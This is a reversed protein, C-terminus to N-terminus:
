RRLSCLSYSELDVSSPLQLGDESTVQLLKLAQRQEPTLKALVQEISDTTTARAVPQNNNISLSSLLVGTSLTFVVTGKIIRKM